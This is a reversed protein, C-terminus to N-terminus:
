PVLGDTRSTSVAEISGGGGSKSRSASLALGAGAWLTWPLPFTLFVHHYQGAILVGLLGLGMAAAFNDGGKARRRLELLVFGVMFLWPILAQLGLEDGVQTISNDSIVSVSAGSATVANPSTAPQDGLGLGLPNTAIIDVGRLVETIHGSNSSAGGQADVFRTGGLGPVIILAAVLLSGIFRLRGEIPRRPSPLAMLALIIVAGLADSRSASFFIAAMCGALVVFDVVTARHRGIREGVVAVVLVLYDSMSYPSFFISSVHLPHIQTIYILDATVGPSSTHLVYYQFNAQDATVVVFHAWSTPDVRQYLALGATLAGLAILVGVFKEKFGPRFPAHRAGLFILPYGADDRWALSRTAWDTPAVTSFLHPVALYVTVVGVYVLVAVDIRDLRTRTDRIHRLGALLICIALLEKFSSAPRLFSGPVGYKYLLGFLLPEIPLFIALTVLAVGPRNVMYILLLLALMGGIVDLAHKPNVSLALLAILIPVLWLARQHLLGGARAGGNVAGEGHGYQRVRRYTAGAREAAAVVRL